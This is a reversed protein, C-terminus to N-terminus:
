LMLFPSRELVLSGDELRVEVSGYAENEYTGAYDALSHTPRTDPVREEEMKAQREWAEAALGDYLEKMEASWDRQSEGNAGAGKVLL